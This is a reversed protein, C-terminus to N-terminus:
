INSLNHIHSYVSAASGMPREQSQCRLWPKHHTYTHTHTCMHTRAHTCTHINAHTYAHTTPHTLSPTHTYTRTYTHMNTLCKQTYTCILGKVWGKAPARGREWEVGEKRRAFFPVFLGTMDASLVDHFRCNGVVPEVRARHQCLAGTSARSYWEAGCNCPTSCIYIYLSLSVCVSPFM